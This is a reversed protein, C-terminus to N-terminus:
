PIPDHHRQGLALLAGGLLLAVSLGLGDSLGAPGDSVRGAVLPGICQGLAFAVTLAAIAPTWHKPQLSRRAVVTVATVVALFSGGFLVASGMAAAPSRSLLPLLAGTSVVALVLSPGRGGRLAAIPYAWAFAGGISATGLLVWFVTVEGPGAGQSKLFAVIFTMYAIYGAGFLGYGILMTGLRRAPWGKETAGSVPPERSARAAPAAFVFGVAGLVGLLFWGWRWGVAAPAAALLPPIALGSVVIGAGGGAFYIGLLSAVRPASISGAGEAVLGAGTIFCIAGSVGSLARVAALAIVNDTAGTAALSVVTVALGTVFARRAGTRRAIQAALLAGALYGMANATNIAGATTFSWNLEARMSPLLLAYAFRALGLAVAPGLALRVALALGLRHARGSPVAEPPDSPDTQNM